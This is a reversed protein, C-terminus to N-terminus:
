IKNNFYAKTNINTASLFYIPKFPLTFATRMCVMFAYPPLPYKAGSMRLTSSGDKPHISKPPQQLSLASFKALYNPHNSTTQGTGAISPPFITHSQGLLLETQHKV